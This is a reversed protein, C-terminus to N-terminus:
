RAPVPPRTEAEELWRRLVEAVRDVEDVVYTYHDGPTRVIEIHPVVRSWAKGFGDAHGEDSEVLAIRGDFRPPRSGLLLRVYSARRQSAPLRHEGASSVLGRTARGLKRSLYDLRGRSLARLARVHHRIRGAFYRLREAVNGVWPARELFWARLRRGITPFPTDLLAVLAISDGEDRLRRAMALALLGGVCEGVLLYPGRPQLARMQRVHAAALAEVPPLPSPLSRFGFFPFSPGVRRALRAGLFLNEGEGTGGSVLFVPRRSGGRQLTVLGGPTSSGAAARTALTAPTSAEVLDAASLPAGLRDSLRLLLETALLSSGGLDFFDDDAGVRDLELVEAFVEAALREREDRPSAYETELRPRDRGADPLANRDVKGTATRPLSDLFVFAAPIMPDTVREALARRIAGARAGDPSAALYAVLRTGGPGERAVVAAERIGPLSALAREVEAIEVRHGRVKVRSDTRGLYFLCGDPSIRGLDGTRYIRLGDRDPAPPFAEASRAPDKWYGVPLTRAVIAIEGPGDTERGSPDLLVVETGDVAYGLPSGPPDPWRTDHDGFWQRIVNMETAGLGVHFRCTKPFCRRYLEFDSALVAEGGLKLMRLRSLDEAGTLAAAFSRFVGPISHFITIGDRALRGPLLRLGDGALSYPHLAAGNLLSGYIDSLSAGFAVSSLLTIRDDARIRLGNTLKLVNHLVNRHNQVVGKPEGTSGSTFIVCALDDPSVAVDPDSAPGSAAVEEIRLIRARSAALELALDLHEEDAVVIEPSLAAFIRRLRAPELAPDLATYFRGAKLAALVAACLPGGPALLLGVPRDAPGTLARAIRNAAANLSAYSWAGEATRVAEREPHRRAIREFRRGISGEIEDGEFPRFELSSEPAARAGTSAV